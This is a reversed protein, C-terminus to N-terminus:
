RVGFPKFSFNPALFKMYESEKFGIGNDTVSITNKMLNITIHIEGDFEEKEKRKDIADLSNQILECFPDYWGVYSNLINRIERKVSSIVAEESGGYKTLLPDFSTLKGM